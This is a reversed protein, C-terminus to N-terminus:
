EHGEGGPVVHADCAARVERRRDRLDAVVAWGGLGFVVALMLLFPLAWLNIM